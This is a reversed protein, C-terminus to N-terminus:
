NPKCIRITGSCGTDLDTCPISVCHWGPACPCESYSCKCPGCALINLAVVLALALAILTVILRHKNIM